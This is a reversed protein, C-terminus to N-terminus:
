RPRAEWAARVVEGPIDTGTPEISNRFEGGDNVENVLWRGDVRFLDVALFEGGIAGHVKMLVGRIDDDLPMNSASAGRATNTIWHPSTRNIACIPLGGAVFARVDHGGKEVYKQIYFVNHIAGMMSKHELVAEAAEPDNAKALLRGWSGLIPKYVVPFGLERSAELAAKPTFAARFEPQAIGATGLALTTQLKNGCLAAVRSSNVVRVGQSELISAVSENEYHSVCRALAVDEPACFNRGGYFVDTVNQLECPIQQREAAERLLKEEIRLRTFLIRLVAM